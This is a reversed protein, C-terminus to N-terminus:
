SRPLPTLWKRGLRDKLMSNRSFVALVNPVSYLVNIPWPPKPSNARSGHERTLIRCLNLIYLDQTCIVPLFKLSRIWLKLKETENFFSLGLIFLGKLLIYDSM